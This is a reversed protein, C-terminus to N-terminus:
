ISKAGIWQNMKPNTTIKTTAPTIQIMEAPTARPTREAL